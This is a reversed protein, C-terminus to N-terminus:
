FICITAITQLPEQCDVTGIKKNVVWCLIITPSTRALCRPFASCCFSFVLNNISSYSKSWQSSVYLLLYTVHPNSLHGQHPQWPSLSNHTNQLIHWLSSHSSSLTHAWHTHSRPTHRHTAWYFSFRMLVAQPPNSKWSHSAYLVDVNNEYPAESLLM